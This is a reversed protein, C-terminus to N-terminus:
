PTTITYMFPISYTGPPDEDYDLVMRLDMDLVIGIGSTGEAVQSEIMTMGVFDTSIWTVEPFSTSAAWLLEGAPKLPDSHVGEFSWTSSSARVTVVWDINSTITVTQSVDKHGADFDSFGLPDFVATGPDLSLEQNVIGYYITVPIWDLKIVKGGGPTIATVRVRFSTSEFESPMWPRGWLVGAGGVVFTQMQEGFWQEYGTTTWTNGADWSLEVEFGAESQGTMEADFRVAIGEIVAQAPLDFAYGWYSHIDGGDVDAVSNDDAYANVAKGFDGQNLFPNRWGTEDAHAVLTWLVSCAALLWWRPMSACIRM